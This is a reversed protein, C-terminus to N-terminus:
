PQSAPANGGLISIDVRDPPGDGSQSGLARVFIRSSPIGNGLLAGRAALARSLSLRRATSPDDQSGAAYAVVNFSVSDATPASDVLGKIAAAGDASLEAQNESFPVRVSAVAPKAPAPPPTLPRAIAVTTTLPETTSRPPEMMPPPPGSPVEGNPPLPTLAAAPKPAPTELLPSITIKPRPPPQPGARPATAKAGPLRDLANLDVTVQAALPTISCLFAAAFIVLPQM